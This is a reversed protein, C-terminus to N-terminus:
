DDRGQCCKTRTPLGSSSPVVCPTGVEAWEDHCSDVLHQLRKMLEDNIGLSDEM